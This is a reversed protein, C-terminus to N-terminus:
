GNGPCAGLGPDLRPCPSPPSAHPRRRVGCGRRALDRAAVKVPLRDDIDALGRQPLDLVVPLRRAQLVPEDIVGAAQAPGPRPHRDNVVIEAAGPCGGLAPRPELAKDGLHAEPVDAEDHPELDGAEGAGAPVPVLQELDAGKRARQDGIAVADVIRGEVVVTEQEAELARHALGLQM